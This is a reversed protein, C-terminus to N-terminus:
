IRMENIIAKRPDSMAHKTLIGDRRPMTSGKMDRDRDINGTKIASFNSRFIASEIQGTRPRAAVLLDFMQLDAVFSGITAKVMIEVHSQAMNMVVPSASGVVATMLPLWLIRKFKTPM